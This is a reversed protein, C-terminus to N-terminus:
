INIVAEVGEHIAQIARRPNVADGVVKYEVAHKQCYEEIWSTPNSKSGVALVVSDCPIEKIEGKQDVWVSNSTIKVCKSDTVTKIGSAAVHILIDTKRGAGVDKAVSDQMEIVTVENGKERIYEAVEM